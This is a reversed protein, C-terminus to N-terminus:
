FQLAECLERWYGLPVTEGGKAARACAHIFKLQKQCSMRSAFFERHTTRTSGVMPPHPAFRLSVRDCFRIQRKQSM